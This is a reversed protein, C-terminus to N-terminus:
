EAGRKYHGKTFAYEALDDAGKQDRLHRGGGIEEFFGAFNRFVKGIEESTETTFSLRVGSPNEALISKGYGHLSLPVSNYIVNYCHECVTYVPFEVHYRDTLWVPLSDQAPRENMQGCSSVNRRSCGQRLCQGVTKRVCNATVMLPTRGYVEAEVGRIGMSHWDNRNLESSATQSVGLETLFKKARSNWIYLSSDAQIMGQYNQEKLYFLSELNRILVGDYLPNKLVREEFEALWAKDRRRLIRPMAAFLSREKKERKWDLLESADPMCESELYLRDTEPCNKVVSFQSAHDIMVALYSKEPESCDETHDASLLERQLQELRDRYDATVERRSEALLKNELSKLADRRLDNLAKVPLFCEPELECILEEFVFATGGTKRIQKEVSQVTLPQRVAQMVPVGEMRVLPEGTRDIRLELVAPQEKNLIIRGYVPLTASQELWTNRIEQLYQEDAGCYSPKDPTIMERGNHKHYYGEQIESRIYLRSLKELDEPEVKWPQDPAALYRDIYKRYLASVGAAYEPRKMRGEIKFSDIGAEILEPLIALTCMDKLSLPYSEQNGPQREKEMGTVTYPLRCPQACRGRNGSRGGLMSSFLCQGSYCYCMAGHIFAEVQIDAEQRIARIENLSLERAPVVRAAGQEKLLKAGYVGTVTMQTSVHLELDPFLERVVHFVGFDQVIIGDLGEEYFPRLYEPLEALEAQRVLTNVTLYVKRGFLHAYRIALCIEEDSFNDAYARAGYKKGGIYVADAGAHIAGLFSEYNGAPALLEVKRKGSM